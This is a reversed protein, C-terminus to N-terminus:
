RGEASGLLRYLMLAALSSADIIAGQRIMANVDSDTFARHTMDQESPERDPEGEVLGTALYADFGQTSYGYAGSLHGLHTLSAARLGTEEALERRALASPDGEAGQSWSGQPFEWARRRVPYRFQEVMWFGDHTRPLIVAFDPKEVVGFIGASGDARRIEDERVVMWPNRYVIRSNIQEM